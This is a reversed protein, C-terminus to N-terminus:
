EIDFKMGLAEECWKWVNERNTMSVVLKEGGKKVAVGEEVTCIPPGKLQQQPMYFCGSKTNVGFACMSIPLSGDAPSQGNGGLLKAAWSPMGGDSMTTVQLNSTALGPDASSVQIKGKLSSAAIKDHLAMAFNANALKTQHYRSWPGRFGLLMESFMSREGGLSGPKSQMFYDKELDKGPSDRASSSHTAVRAEGRSKSAQVISKWVGEVLVFHSLQNTQMQVDYGDKTRLDKLAMVGANCVLVDLGNHKTAIKNIQTAASCVSDLDQLDCTVTEIVTPSGCGKALEKLDKTGQASSKSDRNCLMLVKANKRVAVEAIHFGISKESTGTIAVVKSSLDQFKNPDAVYEDFLKRCSQGHDELNYEKGSLTNGM